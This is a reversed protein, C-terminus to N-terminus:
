LKYTEAIYKEVDFMWCLNYGCINAIHAKAVVVFKRTSTVAVQEAVAVGGDVVTTWCM